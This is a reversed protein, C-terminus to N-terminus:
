FNLFSWMPYPVRDSVLNGTKKYLKVRPVSPPPPANSRNVMLRACASKAVKRRGNGTQSATRKRKTVIPPAAAHSWRVMLRADASKAVKRM